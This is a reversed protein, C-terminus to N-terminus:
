PGGAPASRTRSRGTAAPLEGAPAAVPRPRDALYGAAAEAISGVEDLAQRLPPTYAQGDFLAFRANTGGIDAILTNM